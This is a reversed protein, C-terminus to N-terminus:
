SMLFVHTRVQAVTIEVFTLIILPLVEGDENGFVYKANSEGKGSSNAEVFAFVPM